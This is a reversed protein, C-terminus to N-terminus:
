DDITMVIPNVLKEIVNISNQCIKPKKLNESKIRSKDIRPLDNKVIFKNM